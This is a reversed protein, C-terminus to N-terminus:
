PGLVVENNIAGNAGDITNRRLLFWGFPWVFRHLSFLWVVFGIIPARLSGWREDEEQDKRVKCERVRKLLGCAVFPWHFFSLLIPLYLPFFPWRLFSSFFVRTSRRPGLRNRHRAVTKEDKKHWLFLFFFSKKGREDENGHWEQLVWLILWRGQQALVVGITHEWEEDWGNPVM